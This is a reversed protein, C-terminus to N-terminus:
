LIGKWLKEVIKSMCAHKFITFDCFFKDVSNDFLVFLNKLETLLVSSSNTQVLSCYAQEDTILSPLYSVSQRSRIFSCKSETIQSFECFRIRPLLHSCFYRATYDLRQILPYPFYLRSMLPTALPYPKTLPLKYSLAPEFGTM